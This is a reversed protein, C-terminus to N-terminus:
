GPESQWASLSGSHASVQEYAYGPLGMLMWGSMDSAEASMASVWPGVKRGGLVYGALDQEKKMHFIGIGFLALFYLGFAFIIGWDQQM